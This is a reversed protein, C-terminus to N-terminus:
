LDIGIYRGCSKKELKKWIRRLEKQTAKDGRVERFKQIKDLAHCFTDSQKKTKM